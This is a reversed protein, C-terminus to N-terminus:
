STVKRTPSTRSPNSGRQSIRSTREWVPPCRCGQNEPEVRERDPEWAFCSRVNGRPQSAPQKGKRKCPAGGELRNKGGNTFSTFRFVHRGEPVQRGRGGENGGRKKTIQPRHRGLCNAGRSVSIWGRWPPGQRKTLVMKEGGQSLVETKFPVEDRRQPPYVNTTLYRDNTGKV